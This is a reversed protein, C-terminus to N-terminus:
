MYGAVPEPLTPLLRTCVIQESRCSSATPWPSNWVVEFGVSTGLCCLAVVTRM